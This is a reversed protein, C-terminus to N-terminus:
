NMSQTIPDKGAKQSKSSKSESSKGTKCNTGEFKGVIESVLKHTYAGTNQGQNQKNIRRVHTEPTLQWDVESGQIEVYKHDGSGISPPTDKFCKERAVMHDKPTQFALSSRSCGRAENHNETGPSSCSMVETAQKLAALAAAESKRAEEAAIEEEMCTQLVKQLQQHLNEREKLWQNREEAFEAKLDEIRGDEQSTARTQLFDADRTPESLRVRVQCFYFNASQKAQDPERISTDSEGKRALFRLIRIQDNVKSSTSHAVEDSDSEKSSTEIKDMAKKYEKERKEHERIKNEFNLLLDDKERVKLHADDLRQMKEALSNKLEMVTEEANQRKKREIDFDQRLREFEKEKREAQKVRTLDSENHQSVSSKLEQLSLESEQRKRSEKELDELMETQKRKQQRLEENLGKIKEELESTREKEQSLNHRLSDIEMSTVVNERISSKMNETAAEADAKANKWSQLYEESKAEEEELSKKLKSIQLRKVELENKLALMESKLSQYKEENAESNESEFRQRINREEELDARIRELEQDRREDEVARLKEEEAKSLKLMQLSKEVYNKSETMESLQIQVREIENKLSLIEDRSCDEDRQNEITEILGRNKKREMDLENQIKKLHKNREEERIQDAEMNKSLTQKVKRLLDEAEERREKEKSLSKRLSEVENCLTEVENCLTEYDERDNEIVEKARTRSLEIEITRTVAVLEKALYITEKLMYHLTANHSLNKETSAVQILPSAKCDEPNKKWRVQGPINQDRSIAHGIANKKVDIRVETKGDQKTRSGKTPIRSRPTVIVPNTQFKARDFPAKTETGAATWKLTESKPRLGQQLKEQKEDPTGFLNAPNARPFINQATSIADEQWKLLGSWPSDPASIISHFFSGAGSNRNEAEAAQTSLPRGTQRSPTIREGLNRDNRKSGLLFSM